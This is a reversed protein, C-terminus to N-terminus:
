GGRKIRNETRDIWNLLELLQQRAQTLPVIERVEQKLFSMIRPRAAVALDFQANAGRVYAGINVLDEIQDYTALLSLVRRAAHLHAPDIVGDRLRSMSRIPDIAPYHGSNALAARLRIQGDVIGKVADAIPDDEVHDGETLVTYFGTISGSGSRGARELIQPLMALVSAPYGRAVPMERAALAVQRQGHCLRTLSDMLLLVHRGCDRFYEAITAAVKAARLRLLPAEEGTCVIIVSRALGQPGLSECIFQRVERKREGILAIVSVDAGTDRAIRSILTSKGAGPGAFIGMRQGQGCTLLADIARVGTGIARRDPRSALAAIPHGGDIPRSIGIAVPPRGDIPRGFGDLVRGLLADSCGIRAMSSLNRVPDGRAVGPMPGLAMLLTRDDQFGIVEAVGGKGSSGPAACADGITCTSGIPLPLDSAEMTLGSIAQVTGTIGLLMASEVMELQAALPSM